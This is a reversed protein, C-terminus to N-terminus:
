KTAKLTNLSSHLVHVGVNHMVTGEQLRIEFVIEAV